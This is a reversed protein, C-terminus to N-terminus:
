MSARVLEHLEADAAPDSVIMSRVKRVLAYLDNRLPEFAKELAAPPADGLDKSVSDPGVGPLARVIMALVQVWLTEPVIRAAEGASIKMGTLRHPGLADVFREDSKLVKTVRQALPVNADHEASVQRALSQMEDLAVALTTEGNVLLTRVALVALSYVDAPTSLLPAVEFFVEPIQMGEAAKLEAAQDSPLKAPVTRVRLEGAAMAGRAELNAFLDVRGGGLGFRMWVSDRSSAVVREQTTLTGELIMQDDQMQVRRVRLEGWASVSRSASAANYMSRSDGEMCAFLKRDTTKVPLAVAGGPTSLVARSSWLFPLGTGGPGVHVRFSQATVNLLPEQSAAAAGWVAATVDALVCLKHYLTELLRGTMGHRSLFIMSADASLAGAASSSLGAGPPTGGPEDGGPADFARAAARSASQLLSVSGDETGILTLAQIYNELGVPAHPTVMLLGGGPNFVAVETSFGMAERIDAGSSATAGPPSPAEATVAVFSSMADSEPQYLFRHLSTSYAPLGKGALLADDTCLAWSKGTRPDTPLMSTGRRLDILTPAPHESEFGTRLIGGPSSRAYMECRASWRKDLAHNTLVEKATSMKPGATDFRQHWIEVWQQVRGSSDCVCGLVVASDYTERLSFFPGGPGALGRSASGSQGVPISLRVVVCLRVPGRDGPVIPVAVVGPPLAFPLKQFVLAQAALGSM